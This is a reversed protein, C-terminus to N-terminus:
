PRPRARSFRRQWFTWFMSPKSSAPSKKATACRSLPSSCGPSGVTREELVSVDEASLHLGMMDGLFATAEPIFRLDAVGIREPVQSRGTRSRGLPPRRVEKRSIWAVQSGRAPAAIEFM